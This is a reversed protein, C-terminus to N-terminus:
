IIWQLPGQKYLTVYYLCNYFIISIITLLPIDRLLIKTKFFSPGKVRTKTWGEPFYSLIVAEVRM